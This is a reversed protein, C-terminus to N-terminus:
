TKQHFGRKGQFSSNSVTKDELLSCILLYQFSELFESGLAGVNICEKRPFFWSSIYPLSLVSQNSCCFAIRADRVPFNFHNHYKQYIKISFCDPVSSKNLLNLSQSAPQSASTSDNPVTSCASKLNGVACSIHQHNFSRHCTCGSKPFRLPHFLGQM